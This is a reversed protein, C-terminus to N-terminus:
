HDFSANVPTDGVESPPPPRAFLKHVELGDIHLGRASESPRKTVERATAEKSNLCPLHVRTLVDSTDLFFILRVSDALTAHFNVRVIVAVSPAGHVVTVPSKNWFDSVRIQHGRCQCIESDGFDAILFTDKPGV